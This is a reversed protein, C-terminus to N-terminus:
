RVEVDVGGCKHGHDIVRLAARPTLKAGCTKCYYNAYTTAPRVGRTANYVDVVLDAPLNSDFLNVNPTDM